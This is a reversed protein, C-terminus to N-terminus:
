RCFYLQEISGVEHTQIVHETRLDSLTKLAIRLDRESQPLVVRRDILEFAFLIDLEAHTLKKPDTHILIM